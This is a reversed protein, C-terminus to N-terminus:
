LEWTLAFRLAFPNGVEKDRYTWDKTVLSM